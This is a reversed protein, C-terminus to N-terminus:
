ELWLMAIFRGTCRFDSNVLWYETHRLFYTIDRHWFPEIKRSVMKFIWSFPNSIASFGHCNVTVFWTVFSLFIQFSEASLVINLNPASHQPEAPLENTLTVLYSLLQSHVMRWLITEEEHFWAWFERTSYAILSALVVDADDKNKNAIKWNIAKAEEWVFRNTFVFRVQQNFGWNLGLGQNFGMKQKVGVPLLRYYIAELMSFQQSLM